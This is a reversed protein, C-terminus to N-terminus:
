SLAQKKAVTFTGEDIVEYGSKIDDEETNYYVMYKSQLSKTIYSFSFGNSDYDFDYIIGTYNTADDSESFMDEPEYIYCVKNDECKTKLKELKDSKNGTNNACWSTVESALVNQVNKADSVARKVNAKEIYGMMNPILISALVGIIAIVVILEVLTFGKLRKKM